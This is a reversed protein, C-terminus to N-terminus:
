LSWMLLASHPPLCAPIYSFQTPKDMQEKGIAQCSKTDQGRKRLSLPWLYFVSLGWLLSLNCVTWFLSARGCHIHSVLCFLLEVHSQPKKPSWTVWQSLSKFLLHHWKIVTQATKEQLTILLAHHFPSTYPLSLLLFSLFFSFLLTRQKWDVLPLSFLSVKREGRGMRQEHRGDARTVLTNRAM